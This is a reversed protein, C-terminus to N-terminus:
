PKKEDDEEKKIAAKRAEWRRMYAEGYDAIAQNKAYHVPTGPKMKAGVEKDQDAQAQIGMADSTRHPKGMIEIIMPKIVRALEEALKEEGLDTFARPAKGDKERGFLFVVHNYRFENAANNRDKNAIVNKAIRKGFADAIKGSGTDVVKALDAGKKWGGEEMLALLTNPYKDDTNPSFGAGPGNNSALYPNAFVVNVPVDKFTRMVQNYSETPEDVAIEMTQGAKLVVETTGPGVGQPTRQLNAQRFGDARKDGAVVSVRGDQPYHQSPPRIHVLYTGPEVDAPMPPVKGDKSAISHLLAPKGAGKTYIDVNYPLYYKGPQRIVVPCKKGSQEGEDLKVPEKQNGVPEEVIVSVKENGKITLPFPASQSTSIKSDVSVRFTSATGQKRSQVDITHTGPLLVLQPPMADAKSPDFDLAQQGKGGLNVHIQVANHRKREGEVTLRIEVPKKDERTEAPRPEKSQATAVPTTADAVGIIGATTVLLRGITKRGSETNHVPAKGTAPAPTDAPTGEAPTQVEKPQM